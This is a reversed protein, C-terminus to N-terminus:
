AVGLLNRPYEAQRHLDLGKQNKQSNETEQSRFESDEVVCFESLGESAEHNEEFLM